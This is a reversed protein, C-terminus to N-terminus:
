ECVIKLNRLMPRIIKLQEPTLVDLQEALSKLYARESIRRRKEYSLKAERSKQYSTVALLNNPIFELIGCDDEVIIQNEPQKFWGIQSIIADETFERKDSDLHNLKLVPHLGQKIETIIKKAFKKLSAGKTEQYWRMYENLLVGHRILTWKSVTKVKDENPLRMGSRMEIPFKYHVFIKTKNRTM